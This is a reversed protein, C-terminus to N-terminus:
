LIKNFIKWAQDLNQDLATMTKELSKTNDKKWVFFTAIYIIFLGKINLSGRVGKINFNAIDASIMMSELFSPILILSKHPQIKYFDYIKIISKRYIQLLDFRAMIVEFLM